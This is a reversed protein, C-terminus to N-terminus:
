GGFWIPRERVLDIVVTRYSQGKRISLEDIGIVKPGPM